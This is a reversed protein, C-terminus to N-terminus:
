YRLGGVKFNGIREAIQRDIAKIEDVKNQRIIRLSQIERKQQAMAKNLDSLSIAKLNM